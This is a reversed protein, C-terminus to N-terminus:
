SLWRWPVLALAAFAAAVPLTVLWSVLIRRVMTWHVHHWRRRGAGAGVVSGAVVQTTSVPAGALSSGVLLAASATESALSDLPRLPVIRRGLTRVIPWGGATTGVTLAAGCALEVWTPAALNTIHGTALLLVAVIGASKQADNAGHGFALAFTMGWESARVPGRWQVTARRLGRRLQRDALFGVAFGLFPVVALVVLVGIIGVPKLGDFGGWNLADWGEQALAAGVLGGLLAHGSSAPLGLRLTVLNWAVEGTLAAGMVTVTDGPPVSVVGAVTDAVAGGILLPGLLTGVAALVVAYRPRAGRTAVLTAISDAADHLGNTVAFALAVAIAVVLATEM